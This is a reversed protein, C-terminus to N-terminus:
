RKSMKVSLHRFASILFCFDSCPSLLWSVPTLIFFACGVLYTEMMKVESEERAEGEDIKNQNRTESKQGHGGGFEAFETNLDEKQSRGTPQATKGVSFPLLRDFFPRFHPWFDLFRTSFHGL